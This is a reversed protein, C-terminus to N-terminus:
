SLNYRKVAANFIKLIVEEYSFGAAAAALPFIDLRSLNPLTNCELFYPVGKKSVRIDVRGVDRIGLANCSVIAMTKLKTELSKKIKAPCVYEIDNNEVRAYTYFEEGLYSKGKINVRVPPLINPPDNGIVAVTFESGAIFEEALAPQNYREILWQTKEKVHRFDRALSDSDIGKSTGEEAPKIIVPYKLNFKKESLQSIKEIKLFKPTLVGFSSVLTKAVTKDLTAGMTLADSGVYPIEFLELILPVQSERNRGKIGEAINFVIDWKEGSMLKVLLARVNGIREVRHGASKVASEIDVLTEEFDFEAYKDPLDEPMLKYDTQADYTFGVNLNRM